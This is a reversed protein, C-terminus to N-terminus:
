IRVAERREGLIWFVIISSLLAVGKSGVAPVGKTIICPGRLKAIVRLGVM